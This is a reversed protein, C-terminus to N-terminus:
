ITFLLITFILISITSRMNFHVVSLVNKYWKAFNLANENFEDSDYYNCNCCTECVRQLDPCATNICATCEPNCEMCLNCCIEIVQKRKRVRASAHEAGTVMDNDNLANLQPTQLKCFPLNVSICSKCYYVSDRVRRFRSIQKKTMKTCKYHIWSKCSNCQICGHNCLRKCELCYYDLSCEHCLYINEISNLRQIEPYSLKECANCYLQGCSFCFISHTPDNQHLSTKCGDCSRKSKCLKCMFKLNPFNKFENLKKISVRACGIHYWNTCYDCLICNTDADCQLKCNMCPFVSPSQTQSHNQNSNNPNICGISVDSVRNTYQTSDLPSDEM